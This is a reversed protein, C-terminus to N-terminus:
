VNGKQRDVRRLENIYGLCLFSLAATTMNDALAERYQTAILNMPVLVLNLLGVGWLVVRIPTGTPM